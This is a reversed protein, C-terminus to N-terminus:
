DGQILISILYGSLEMAWVDPDDTKQRHYQDMDTEDPSGLRLWLGVRIDNLIKLLWEFQDPTVQMSIGKKDHTFFEDSTIFKQLLQKNETYNEEMAENLLQQDDSPDQGHSLRHYGKPIVPYLGLLNGLVDYEDTSLRAHFHGNENKLIKM